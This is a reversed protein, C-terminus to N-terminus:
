PVDSGVGKASLAALRTVTQWLLPWQRKVDRVVADHWEPHPGKDNLVRWLLDLNAEVQEARQQKNV